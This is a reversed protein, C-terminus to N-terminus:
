RILDPNERIGKIASKIIKYYDPNKCLVMAVGIIEKVKAPPITGQSIQYGLDGLANMRFPDPLTLATAYNVVLDRFTSEATSLTTLDPNNDWVFAKAMLDLDEPSRYKAAWLLKLGLFPDHNKVLLLDIAVEIAFHALEYNPPNNLYIEFGPITALK